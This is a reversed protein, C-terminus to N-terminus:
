RRARDIAEIREHEAVAEALGPADLEAVKGHYRERFAAAAAEAEAVDADIRPDDVGTTSTPSTGARGRRRRDRETTAM